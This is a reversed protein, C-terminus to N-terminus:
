AKLSPSIALAATMLGAPPALQWAPMHDDNLPSRERKSFGRWSMVRM